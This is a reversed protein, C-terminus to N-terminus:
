GKTGTRRRWEEIAKDMSEQRELEKHVYQMADIWITPRGRKICMAGGGFEDLRLKSCSYSWSAFFPEDIELEEVLARAIMEMHDLDVYEDHHFWVGNDEVDVDVQTFEVPDGYIDESKEIEKTVRDVIEQARDKQGEEFNLQSSTILYNNAM